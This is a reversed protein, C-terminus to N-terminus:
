CGQPGRSSVVPILVGRMRLRRESHGMVESASHSGCSGKGALSNRKACKQLGHALLLHPHGQWGWSHSQLPREEARHFAGGGDRFNMSHSGADEKREKDDVSWRGGWDRLDEVDRSMFREGGLGTGPVSGGMRQGRLGSVELM